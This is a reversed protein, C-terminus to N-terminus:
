RSASIYTPTTEVQKDLAPTEYSAHSIKKVGIMDTTRNPDPNSFNSCAAVDREASIRVARAFVDILCDILDPRSV